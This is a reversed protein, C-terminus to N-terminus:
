LGAKNAAIRVYKAFKDLDTVINTKTRGIMETIILRKGNESSLVVKSQPSPYKNLELKRDKVLNALQREWIAIQANAPRKVKLIRGSKALENEGLAQARLLIEQSASSPLVIKLGPVRIPKKLSHLVNRSKM